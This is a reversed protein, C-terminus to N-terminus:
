CVATLSTRGSGEGHGQGVSIPHRCHIHDEVHLFTDEGGDPHFLAPLASAGSHSALLISGRRGRLRFLGSSRSELPRGPEFDIRNSIRSGLGPSPVSDAVRRRQPTRIATGPFSCRHQQGHVVARERAVRVAGAPAGDPDPAGLAAGGPAAGDGDDHLDGGRRRDGLTRQQRLIRRARDFSRSPSLERPKRRSRRLCRRFGRGTMALAAFCVLLRSPLIPNSRRLLEECHRPSTAAPREVDNRAFRLLGSPGSALAPNSRRL